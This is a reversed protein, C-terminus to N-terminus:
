HEDSDYLWLPIHSAELDRVFTALVAANQPDDSPKSQWYSWDIAESTSAKDEAFLHVEVAFGQRKLSIAENVVGTLSRHRATPSATVTQSPTDTYM